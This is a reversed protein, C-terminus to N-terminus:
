LHHHGHHGQYRTLALLLATVAFGPAKVTFSREEWFIRRQRRSRGPRQAVPYDSALIM